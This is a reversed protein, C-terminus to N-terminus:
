NENTESKKWMCSQAMAGHHGLGGTKIPAAMGVAECQPHRRQIRYTDYYISTTISLALHHQKIIASAQQYRQSTHNEDGGGWVRVCLCLSLFLSLNM